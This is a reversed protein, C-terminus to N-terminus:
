HPMVNGFCSIHASAWGSVGAPNAVSVIVTGGQSGSVTCMVQQSAVNSDPPMTTSLWGSTTWTYHLEESVPWAECWHSGAGSPWCELFVPDPARSLVRCIKQDAGCLNANPHDYKGYREIGCNKWPHECFDEDDEALAPTLCGASLLLVLCIRIPRTPRKM